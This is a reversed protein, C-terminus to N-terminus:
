IEKNDKLESYQSIFNDAESLLKLYAEDKHIGLDTLDSNFKVLALHNARDILQYINVQNILILELLERDNLNEIKTESYIM